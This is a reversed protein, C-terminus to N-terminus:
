DVLNIIRHVANDTEEQLKLITSEYFHKACFNMFTVKTAM